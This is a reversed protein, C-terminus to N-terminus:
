VRVTWQYISFAEGTQTELVEVLPGKEQLSFGPSTIGQRRSTAGPALFALAAQELVM